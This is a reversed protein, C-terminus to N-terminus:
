PKDEVLQLRSEIKLKTEEVDVGQGLVHNVFYKCAPRDAIVYRMDGSESSISMFEPHAFISKSEIDTNVVYLTGDGSESFIKTLAKITESILM